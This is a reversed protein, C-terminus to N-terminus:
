TKNGATAGLAAPTAARPDGRRLGRRGARNEEHVVFFVIRRNAFDASSRLPQRTSVRALVALFANLPELLM